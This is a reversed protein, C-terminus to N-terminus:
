LDFTEVTVKLEVYKFRVWQKYIYIYIILFAGQCRFKQNTYKRIFATKCQHCMDAACQEYDGRMSCTINICANSCISPVSSDPCLVSVIYHSYSYYWM